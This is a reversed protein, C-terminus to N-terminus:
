KVIRRSVTGKVSKCSILYVGKAWHATSLVEDQSLTTTLVEAGDITTIIIDTAETIGTVTLQDSVPNPFFSLSLEERENVSNYMNSVVAEGGADDTITLAYQDGNLLGSLVINGNQVVTTVGGNAGNPLVNSITFLSGDEAPMGGSITVTIEGTGPDSTVIPLIPSLCYVEQVLGLDFCPQNPDTTHSYVNGSGSYMTIPQVYYPNPLLSNGDCNISLTSGYGVIGLLCPDSYPASPTTPICSFALYAMSTDYSPGFGTNVENAFTHDLNSSMIFDDGYAVYHTNNAILNSVITFTGADAVCACSAPSNSNVSITCTLDDTFVASVTTANGNSAM